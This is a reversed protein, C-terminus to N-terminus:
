RSFLVSQAPDFVDSQDVTGFQKTLGVPEHHSRGIDVPLLYSKSM